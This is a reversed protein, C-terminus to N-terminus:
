SAPWHADPMDHLKESGALMEFEEVVLTKPDIIPTTM